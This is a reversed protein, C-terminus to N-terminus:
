NSSSGGELLIETLAPVSRMIRATYERSIFGRMSANEFDGALMRFIARFPLLPDGQGTYIDSSGGVVILNPWAQMSRHAFEFLLSTKGRGAEGAVFVMKGQGAITKDLHERLLMVERSRAVFLHEEEIPSGIEAPIPILSGRLTNPNAINPVFKGRALQLFSVRQSDEVALQDALLEALQESPKREDREIKRLMSLSCNVKRALDEQTLDL